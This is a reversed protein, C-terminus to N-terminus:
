YTCLLRFGPDERGRTEETHTRVLYTVSTSRLPDFYGRDLLPDLHYWKSESGIWKLDLSTTLAFSTSRFHIQGTHIHPPRGPLTGAGVRRRAHSSWFPLTVGPVGVAVRRRDRSEHMCALAACCAAGDAGVLGHLLWCTQGSWCRPLRARGECVHPAAWSGLM